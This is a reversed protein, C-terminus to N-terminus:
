WRLHDVYHKLKLHFDTTGTYNFLMTRQIILKVQRFMRQNPRLILLEISSTLDFMFSKIQFYM